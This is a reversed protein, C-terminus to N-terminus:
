QAMEEPQTNGLAPNKRGMQKTIEEFSIFTM